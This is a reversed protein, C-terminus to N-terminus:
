ICHKNINLISQMLAQVAPCSHGRLMLNFSFIILWNGKEYDNTCLPRMCLDEGPNSASIDYEQLNCKGKTYDIDKLLDGDFLYIDDM